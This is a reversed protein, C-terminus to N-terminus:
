GSLTSTDTSSEPVPIPASSVSRTKSANKVVFDLPVPIPRAIQREIM